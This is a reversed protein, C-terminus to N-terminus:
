RADCNNCPAIWGCAKCLLTPAYGRRNIYVLVQGDAALHERSAPTRRQDSLGKHVDIGPAPRDACRATAPAQAARRPL